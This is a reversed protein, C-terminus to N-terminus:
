INFYNLYNFLTYEISVFWIKDVPEIGVMYFAKLLTKRICECLIIRSEMHEDGVIRYKKYNEQVKVAIDYIYDTIKNIAMEEASDNVVDFFKILM